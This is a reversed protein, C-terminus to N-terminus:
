LSQRNYATVFVSRRDNYRSRRRGNGIIVDFNQHARDYTQDCNSCKHMFTSKLRCLHRLETFKDRITPYISPAVVDDSLQYFGCSGASYVDAFMGSAILGHEVASCACTHARARDRRASCLAHADLRSAIYRNRIPIKSIM